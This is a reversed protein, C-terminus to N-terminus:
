KEFGFIRAANRYFIQDQEDATLGMKDFAAKWRAV